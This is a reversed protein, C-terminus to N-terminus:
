TNGRPSIRFYRVSHQQFFFILLLLDCLNGAHFGNQQETRRHRQRRSLANRHALLVPLKRSVVRQVRAVSERTGNRTRRDDGRM